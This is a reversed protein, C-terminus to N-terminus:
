EVEADIIPPYGLIPPYEFKKDNLKEELENIRKIYEYENKQFLYINKLMEIKMKFHSSKMDFIFYDFKKITEELKDSAKKWDLNEM